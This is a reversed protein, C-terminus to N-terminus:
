RLLLITNHSILNGNKKLQSFCEYIERTYREGKQGSMKNKYALSPKPDPKFICCSSCKCIRM